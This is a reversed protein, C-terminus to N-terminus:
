QADAITTLGLISAESADVQVVFTDSESLAMRYRQALLSSGIVYLRKGKLHLCESMESVDNGVIIGSLYDFVAADSMEGTVQRSRVSFLHHLLGGEKKSTDLGKQFVEPDFSDSSSIGKVLSSEQSLKAYLEGSFTTSFQKLEGKEIRGWKCHTGPMCFFIEKNSDVSADMSLKKWLGLLQTEEGRMVDAQQGVGIGQAGPVIYVDVPLTTELQVLNASLETLLHPCQLYPVEQWGGKSGVMGAMYIPVNHELWPAVIDALTSEFAEPALGLMGQDSQKQDLITGLRDILFVRLNSTGWDVAIFMPSGSM